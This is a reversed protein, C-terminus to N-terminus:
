AVKETPYENADARISGKREAFEEVTQAGAIGLRENIRQMRAQDKEALSDSTGGFFM